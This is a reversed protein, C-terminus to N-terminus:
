LLLLVGCYFFDAWGQAWSRILAQECKRERGATMRLRPSLSTRSPGDVAAHLATLQIFARRDDTQGAASGIMSGFALVAAQLWVPQARAAAAGNRESRTGPNKEM